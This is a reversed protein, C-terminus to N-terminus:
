DENEDAITYYRSDYEYSTDSDLLYAVLSGGDASYYGPGEFKEFHSKCAEYRVNLQKKHTNFYEEEEIGLQTAMESIVPWSYEKLYDDENSFYYADYDERFYDQLKNKAEEFSLNDALVYSTRGNFHIDRSAIYPNTSATIKYTKM